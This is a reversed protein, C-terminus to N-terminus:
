KVANHELLISEIFPKLSKIVQQVSITSLNHNNTVVCDFKTNYPSWIVDDTNYKVFVGFTPVAFASALHIAATDPTFLLDLRSIVAAFRSFENSFFYNYKNEAIEAAIESDKPSSLLLINVDFTSLYDLLGKFNDIGWFRADNGASINIGVLLKHQKFKESIFKDAHETSAKDLYYYLKIKSRDPHVNFLESIRIVRDVVHNTKSDLRPVTRTYINDNGKALGFKNQASCLAILFSVTTSVDDHLDVVTDIQETKIFKLIEFFGKIGKNFLVLSDIDQNNTFAAINNRDALLYIKCNLSKKIEHILPTSILADGIRNLRIFLIKSSQDISEKVAGNPKGKFLLLLSLLLNKLIYEIKKM